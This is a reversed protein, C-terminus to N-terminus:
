RPARWTRATGDESASLAFEGGPSLAVGWIVGAHGTFRHEERGTEVDWLRVTRDWSGTLAHRGDPTFAVAHVQTQHGAWERLLKGRAVDWVCISASKLSRRPM